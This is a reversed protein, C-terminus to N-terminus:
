WHVILPSKARFSNLAKGSTLNLCILNQLTQKEPKDKCIKGFLMTKQTAINLPGPCAEFRLSLGIPWTAHDIPPMTVPGDVAVFITYQCSWVFVAVCFQQLNHLSVIM